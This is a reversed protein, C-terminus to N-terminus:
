DDRGIGRECKGTYGWHATGIPQDESVRFTNHSPCTINPQRNRKYGRQVKWRYWMRRRKMLEDRAVAHIFKGKTILDVMPYVDVAKTQEDAIFQCLLGMRNNSPRALVNCDGNEKVRRNCKRHVEM